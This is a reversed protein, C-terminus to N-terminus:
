INDEIYLDILHAYDEARIIVYSNKIAQQKQHLVVTPIQVDNVKSAVAQAMADHIWMPLQNRHKVEFSIYDHAIDPASGRIRGTIPVREGRFFAAVLREVNKWNSM